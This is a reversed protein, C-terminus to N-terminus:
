AGRCPPVREPGTSRRELLGRTWCGLSADTVLDEPVDVDRRLGSWVPTSLEVAGGERHARLSDRGYAAHLNHRTRATLLTTGTGARDPVCASDLDSARSLAVDLEASRLYPLDGPLVAVNGPHGETALTTAGATIAENVGLTERVIVTVGPLWLLAIDDENQCVVLAGDVCSAHTVAHLTDRAMAIALQQRADHPGGLRTKARRTDKMPVIVWWRIPANM